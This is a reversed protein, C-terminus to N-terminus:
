KQMGDLLIENRSVGIIYTANIDDYKDMEMDGICTVEWNLRDKFIKKRLKLPQNLQKKHLQSYKVVKLEIM